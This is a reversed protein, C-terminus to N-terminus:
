KYAPRAKLSPHGAKILLGLLHFWGMLICYLLYHRNEKWEKIIAQNKLGLVSIPHHLLELEQTPWHIPVRRHGLAREQLENALHVLPLLFVVATFAACNHVAQLHSMSGSARPLCNKHKPSNESTSSNELSNTVQFWGYHFYECWLFWGISCTLAREWM